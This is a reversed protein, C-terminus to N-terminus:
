RAWGGPKKFGNELQRAAKLDKESYKAIDEKKGGTHKGALKEGGMAMNHRYNDKATEGAIRRPNMIKYVEYVAFTKLVKKLQEKAKDTIHHIGKNKLPLGAENEKPEQTKEETADKIIKSVDKAIDIKEAKSGQSAQIDSVHKTLLLILRSEIENINNSEHFIQDIKNGLSADKKFDYSHMKESESKNNIGKFTADNKHDLTPTEKKEM